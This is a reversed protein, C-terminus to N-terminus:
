TFAGNLAASLGNWRRRRRRGEGGEGEGGFFLFTVLPNRSENLCQNFDKKEM